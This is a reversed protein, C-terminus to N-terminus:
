ESEVNCQNLSKLGNLIIDIEVVSCENWCSKNCSIPQLYSTLVVDFYVLKWAGWGSACGSDVVRM